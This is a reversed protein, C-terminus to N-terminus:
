LPNVTPKSPHNQATLLLKLRGTFPLHLNKLSGCVTCVWTLHCIEVTQGPEMSSNLNCQAASSALRVAFYSTRFSENLINIAYIYADMSEAKIYIVLINNKRKVRLTNVVVAASMKVNKIM